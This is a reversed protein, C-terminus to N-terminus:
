IQPKPFLQVGNSMVKLINQGHKQVASKCYSEPNKVKDYEIIQGNTYYITVITGGEIRSLENERYQDGARFIKSM